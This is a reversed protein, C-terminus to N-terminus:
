FYIDTLELVGCGYVVETGQLGFNSNGQNLGSLFHWKTVNVRFIQTLDCNFGPRVGILDLIRQKEM